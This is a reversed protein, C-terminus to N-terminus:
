EDYRYLFTHHEDWGKEIKYGPLLKGYSRNWDEILILPKSLYITDQAGDIVNKEYEEVDIKILTIDGYAGFGNLFGDLSVQQATVSGDVAVRTAGFNQSNPEILVETQKDGIAYQELLVNDYGALNRVLLDFNDSYPEFAILGHTHLFNLFYLSHNGINAGVDIITGHHPHNDALYDLIPAEFFDRERWIHNSLAENDHTVMDVGRLNITRM